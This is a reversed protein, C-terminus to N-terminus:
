RRCRFVHMERSSLSVFGGSGSGSGNRSGEGAGPEMPAVCLVQSTHPQTVASPSSAAAPPFGDYRRSKEAAEVEHVDWLAVSAGDGAAFRLRPGPEGGGGGGDGGGGRLLATRTKLSGNKGTFTAVHSFPSLLPSPSSCSCSPPQLAAASGPAAPAEQEPRLRLLHHHPPRAMSPVVGGSSNCYSVVILPTQVGASSSSPSSCAPPAPGATAAGTCASGSLAPSFRPPPPLPAAATAGGWVTIGTASAALLRGESLPLLTHVSNMHTCRQPEPRRLEALLGRPPAPFSSSSSPSSLSSTSSAGRNWSSSSSSSSSFSSSSAMRLDFIAVREDELGAAVVHEGLWAVSCVECTMPVRLAVASAELSVLTLSASAAPSRTPPPPRSPFWSPPNVPGGRVAALAMKGDPGIAVDDVSEGEPLLVSSSPQRPAFLSFIQLLARKGGALTEGGGVVVVGTADNVSACSAEFRPHLATVSTRYFPSPSPSPAAVIEAEGRAEGRGGAETRARKAAAAAAAPAPATAAASPPPPPPPLSPLPRGREDVLAAAGTGRGREDSLNANANAAASDVNNSPGLLAVLRANARAMKRMESRLRRAEARASALAREAAKRAAQEAGALKEAAAAATGDAASIRSTDGTVFLNIVDDTAAPENCLPCRGTAAAAARVCASGFLHGCRRLTAVRHPGESSWPELCIVCEDAEAATPPEEEPAPATTATAPPLPPRPRSTTAADAANTTTAFLEHLEDEGGEGDSENCWSSTPHARRSSSGRRRAAPSAM